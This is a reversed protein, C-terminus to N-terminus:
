SFLSKISKSKLSSFISFPILQKGFGIVLITIVTNHSPLHVTTTGGASLLLFQLIFIVRAYTCVCVDETILM